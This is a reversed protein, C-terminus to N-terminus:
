RDGSLASLDNYIWKNELYLRISETARLKFICLRAVRFAAQTAYIISLQHRRM